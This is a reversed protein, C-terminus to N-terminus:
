SLTKVEKFRLLRLANLIVSLSSFTMALSAMWPPATVGWYAFAGTGFPIAISNYLLAWFLNEKMVRLTKRCLLWLSPIQMPESRILLIDGTQVAIDSGSAMAISIDARAMAPADNIGDGVMAVRHTKNEQAKLDQIERIVREKDEPVVEAYFHDFGLHKAVAAVAPRRDGSLLTCELNKSRLAAIVEKSQPKIPDQLSLFGAYNGDISLFILSFAGELELSSQHLEAISDESPLGATNEGLMFAYSGLLAMSGEHALGKPIRFELGKGSIQRLEEPATMSIGLSRAHDCVAYALPHQSQSEASACIQLLQDQSLKPGAETNSSIQVISAQGQTITGTKDFVFSNVKAFNELAEGGKIILGLQAGRATGTMVAIPTALGMACPCSIILVTVFFSLSTDISAGTLMWVTFTLASIGFVTWVFYRSIVDALRALPAKSGQAEEVLQIIQALRTKKGASRVELLINQEGRNLVGGYLEDGKQHIVPLSEGTLMSEDLIAQESLLSGDAGLREGSRVVLIDGEQIQSSLVEEEVFEGNVEKRLLVKDPSLKALAMLARNGHAKSRSELYKGLLMFALILSGTHFEILHLTMENIVFAGATIVQYIGIVTSYIFASLSGIAILSDMNPSLALLSRVGSNLIKHAGIYIALAMFMQLLYFFNPRDFFFRTLASNPALVYLFHLILVLLGIALLSLIKRGEGQDVRSETYQDLSIETLKYGKKSLRANFKEINSEGEDFNIQIKETAFNVQATEVGPLKKLQKEIRQACAACHMGGVNYIEKKM